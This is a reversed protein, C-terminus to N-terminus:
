LLYCLYEDWFFAGEKKAMEKPIKFVAKKEM